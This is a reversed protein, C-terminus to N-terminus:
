TGPMTANDITLDRRKTGKEFRCVAEDMGDQEIRMTGTEPFTSYHGGSILGFRIIGMEM